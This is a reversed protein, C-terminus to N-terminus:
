PDDLDLVLPSHDSLAEVVRPGHEYWCARLRPVLSPSLFAHDVRHRGEGRVGHSYERVDGHLARFADVWGQGLLARFADEVGFTAGREDIRHLGTNLDGVIAFPEHISLEAATLLARWFGPKDFGSRVPPVYANLLTFGAGAPDVELWRERQLETLWTPSGHVHFPERALVAVGNQSRRPETALVHRLGAARLHALLPASAGPRYESLALVDPALREVAAAIPASRIGGGGQRVNWAVIRV